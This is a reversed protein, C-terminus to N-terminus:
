RFNEFTVNNISRVNRTHHLALFGRSPHFGGQFPRRLPNKEISQNGGPRNECTVAIPDM